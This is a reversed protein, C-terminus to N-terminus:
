SRSEGKRLEVRYTALLHEGIELAASADQRDIEGGDLAGFVERAFRRGVRNIRPPYYTGGPTREEDSRRDSRRREMEDFHSTSITGLERLRILLAAQSVHLERSLLRLLEDDTETVGSFSRDRLAKRVLRAPMLAAAAVANCFREVRSHDDLDCIGATRLVIHTYEHILSFIRAYASDRTDVVVVAHAGDVQSFARVTDDDLRRQSVYVGRRQLADSWLRLAAFEDKTALQEHESVDLFGRLARGATKPPTQTSIGDPVEYRTEPFLDAATALMEAVKDIQDLLAASPAARQNRLSRNDLGASSIVEPADILLYSWPRKFFKGLHVLDDLTLESDEAVCADPEVSLTMTAALDAPTQHRNSLMSSLRVASVTVTGM